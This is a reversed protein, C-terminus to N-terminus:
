QHDLFEHLALFGAQERQRVAGGGDQQARGLVVLPDALAIGAGIGAAHTGIGRRGAHRGVKGFPRHALDHLGRDVGHRGLAPGEDAHEIGAQDECGLARLQHFVIDAEAVRFGLHQHGPQPAIQGLDQQGRAIAAQVRRHDLQVRAGGQGHHQGGVAIGAVIRLALHDAPQIIGGIRGRLHDDEVGAGPGIGIAPHQRVTAPNQGHGGKTVAHRM